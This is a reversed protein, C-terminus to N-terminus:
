LGPEEIPVLKYHEMKVDIGKPGKIMLRATVSPLEGATAVITLSQVTDPDLGLLECLKVNFEEM